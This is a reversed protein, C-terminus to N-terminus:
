NEFNDKFFMQGILFRELVKMKSYLCFYVNPCINICSLTTPAHDVISM